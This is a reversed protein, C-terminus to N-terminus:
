RNQARRDEIRRLIDQLRRRAVPRPTPRTPQLLSPPADVYTGDRRSFRITDSGRVGSVIEVASVEPWPLWQAGSLYRLAVGEDDVVLFMRATVYAVVLAAVGIVITIARFPASPHLYLNVAACPCAVLILLATQVPSIRFALRGSDQPDADTV